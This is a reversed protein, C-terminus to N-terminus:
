GFGAPRRGNHSLVEDYAALCRDSVARWTFDKLVSERGRAGMARAEAPHDLLWRIREGLAAPDGPPVIFGTIGDRVVEPMGGTRSCIVPTGCAMAEVLVLGFIEGGTGVENGFVDREVTPLVLVSSSQYARVLRTDDADTVFEVRKGEAMSRLFEFYSPDYPRGLVVLRDAADVAEVLYNVGKLPLLRGVYLVKRERAERSPVFKETDVGGYITRVLGTEAYGAYSQAAFDSIMLYGDVWRGIDVHYSLDFGGGGGLDSVFVPQRRFHGRLIALNTIVTRFQHCHVVDFRGLGRVFGFSLPNAKVGGIWHRVPHIEVTLRDQLRRERRHGFSVLTTDVQEAMARALEFAYREGGGIISEPDFYTPTLHLVKM